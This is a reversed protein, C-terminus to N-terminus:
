GTRKVPSIRSSPMRYRAYTNSYAYINQIMYLSFSKELRKLDEPFDLEGYQYDTVDAYGVHYGNDIMIQIAHVFFLQRANPLTMAQDLAQRFAPVAHNRFLRLGISEGNAKQNDIAKSIQLVHSGATLVKMDENDYSPHRHIAIIAHADNKRLTKLLSERAFVNDGNIVMFDDNMEERALWLSYLNNTTEYDQNIIIKIRIDLRHLIIYRRVAEKVKEAKFGAIIVIDRIGVSALTVLQYELITAGNINLLCKPTESTLPELRKGQGAALIFAKM